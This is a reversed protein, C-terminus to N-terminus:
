FEVQVAYRFRSIFKKGTQKENLVNKLVNLAEKVHLGHLDLTNSNKIDINNSMFIQMSAMNNSTKM